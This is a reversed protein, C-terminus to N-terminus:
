LKLNIMRKLRKKIYKNKVFNPFEIILQLVDNNNIEIYREDIIDDDLEVDVLGTYVVEM